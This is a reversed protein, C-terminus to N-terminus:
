KRELIEPRRAHNDEVETFYQKVYSVPRACPYDYGPRIFIVRQTAPGYGTVHVIVSNKDRFRRDLPKILNNM